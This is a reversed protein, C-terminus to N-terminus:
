SRRRILVSSYDHTSATSATTENSTATIIKVKLVTDEAIEFETCASDCSINGSTQSSFYDFAGTTGVLSGDLELRYECVTTHGNTRDVALAAEVLYQGKPLTLEDANISAGNLATVAGWTLYDNANLHGSSKYCYYQGLTVSSFPPKFSM